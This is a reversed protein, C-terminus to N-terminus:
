ILQRRIREANWADDEEPEELVIAIAMEEDLADGDECTPITLSEEINRVM